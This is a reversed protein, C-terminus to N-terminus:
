ANFPRFRLSRSRASVNGGPEEDVGRDLFTKVRDPKNVDPPNYSSGVDNAKFDCVDEENYVNKVEEYNEVYEADDEESEENTLSMPCKPKSSADKNPKVQDQVNELSGIKHDQDSGSLTGRPTERPTGRLLCRPTGRLSGRLTGKPTARPTARPTGRPTGM